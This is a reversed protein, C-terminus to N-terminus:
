LSVPMSPMLYKSPLIVNARSSKTTPPFFLFPMQHFLFFFLRENWINAKHRTIDLARKLKSYIMLRAMISGSITVPPFYLYAELTMSQPLEKQKLCLCEGCTVQYFRLSSTWLMPWLHGRLNCMDRRRGWHSLQTRPIIRLCTHSISSNKSGNRWPFRENANFHSVPSSDVLSFAPMRLQWVELCVRVCACVCLCACVCACM